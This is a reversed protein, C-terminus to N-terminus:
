ARVADVCSLVQGVGSWQGMVVPIMAIATCHAQPVHVLPRSPPRCSRFGEETLAHLMSLCIGGVLATCMWESPTQTRVLGRTMLFRGSLALHVM